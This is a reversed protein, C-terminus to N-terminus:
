YAIPMSRFINSNMGSQFLVLYFVVFIVFWLFEAVLVSVLSKWGHKSAVIIAPGFLVLVYMLVITILGVIGFVPEIIMSGFVNAEGLFRLLFTLGIVLLVSLLGVSVNTISLVNAFNGSIQVPLKQDTAIDFRDSKM